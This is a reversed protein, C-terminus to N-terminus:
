HHPVVVLSDHNTCAAGCVRVCVGKPRLSELTKRAEEIRGMRCLWRPSEPIVSAFLIQVVAPIITFGQMYQWGHPVYTVFVFGLLGTSFIGVTVMLKLPGVVCINSRPIDIM